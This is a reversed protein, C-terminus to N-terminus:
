YRSLIWVHMRSKADKNASVNEVAREFLNKAQTYPIRYRTNIDASPENDLAVIEYLQKLVLGDLVVDELEEGSIKNAIKGFFTANREIASKTTKLKHSVHILLDEYSCVLPSM